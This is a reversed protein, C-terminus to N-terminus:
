DFVLSHVLMMIIWFKSGFLFVVFSKIYFLLMTWTKKELLSYIWRNALTKKEELWEVHPTLEDTYQVSFM